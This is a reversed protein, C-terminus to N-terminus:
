KATNETAFCYIVLKVYVNKQQLRLLINQVYERGGGSPNTKGPTIKRSANTGRRPSIRSEDNYSPRMEGDDTKNRERIGIFNNLSAPSM